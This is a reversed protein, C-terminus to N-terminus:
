SALDFRWLRLDVAQLIWNLEGLLFPIAELLKGAIWIAFLILLWVFLETRFLQRRGRRDGANVSLLAEFSYASLLTRAVENPM